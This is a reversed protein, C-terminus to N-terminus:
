NPLISHTRTENEFLRLGLVDFMSNIQHHTELISLPLIWLNLHKSIQEYIGSVITLDKRKLEANSYIFIGARAKLQEKNINENNVTRLNLLLAFESNM